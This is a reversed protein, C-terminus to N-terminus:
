SASRLIAETAREHQALKSIKPDRQLGPRAGMLMLAEAQPKPGSDARGLTLGGM